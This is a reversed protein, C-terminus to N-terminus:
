IFFVRLIWAFHVFGHLSVQFICIDMCFDTCFSCIWAFYRECLFFMCFDMCFACIWASFFDFSFMEFRLISVHLYSIRDFSCIYSYLINLCVNLMSKSIEGKTGHSVYIYMFCNLFPHTNYAIIM